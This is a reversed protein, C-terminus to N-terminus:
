SINFVDKCEEMASIQNKVPLLFSVYALM